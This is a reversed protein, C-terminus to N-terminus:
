SAYLYQTKPTLFIWANKCGMDSPAPELSRIEPTDPFMAPFTPVETISQNPRETGGLIGEDGQQTSETDVPSEDLCWETM